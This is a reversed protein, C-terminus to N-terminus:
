HNINVSPFPNIVLTSLFKEKLKYEKSVILDGEKWFLEIFVLNKIFPICTEYHIKYFSVLFKLKQISNSYDNLNFKQNRFEFHCPTKSIAYHQEIWKLFPQDFFTQIANGGFITFTFKQIQRLHSLIWTEFLGFSLSKEYHLEFELKFRPSLYQEYHNLFNVVEEIVFFHKKEDKKLTYIQEFDAIRNEAFFGYMDQEQWIVPGIKFFLKDITYNHKLYKKESNEMQLKKELKMWIMLNTELCFEFRKDFFLSVISDMKKDWMSLAFQFKCHAISTDILIGLLHTWEWSSIQYFNFGSIVVCRSFSPHFSQFKEIKNQNLVFFQLADGFSEFHWKRFNKVFHFDFQFKVIISETWKPCIHQFFWMEKSFDERDLLFYSLDIFSWILKKIDECQDKLEM